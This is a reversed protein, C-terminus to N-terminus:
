KKILFRDLDGFGCGVDLISCNDLEGIESVVESRIPQRGKFWGLTRSDYGYKKLRKNYREITALKEDTVAKLANAQLAQIDNLNVGSSKMLKLLKKEENEAKTRSKGM